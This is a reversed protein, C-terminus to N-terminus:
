YKSQNTAVAKFYRFFVSALILLINNIVPSKLILFLIPVRVKQIVKNM